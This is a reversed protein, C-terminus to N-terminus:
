DEVKTRVNQNWSQPRESVGDKEARRLEGPIPLTEKPDSEGNSTTLTYGRTKSGIEDKWLDWVDRAHKAFHLAVQAQEVPPSISASSTFWRSHWAGKM